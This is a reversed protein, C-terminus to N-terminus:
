LRLAPWVFALVVVVVSLSLSSVHQQTLILVEYVLLSSQHSLYTVVFQVNTTQPQSARTHTTVCGGGEGSVKIATQMLITTAYNVSKSGLNLVAHYGQEKAKSIYEDIEQYVFL